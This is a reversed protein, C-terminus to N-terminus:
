LKPKANTLSTIEAPSEGQISDQVEENTDEESDDDSDEDTQADESAEEFDDADEEGPATESEPVDIAPAPVDVESADEEISVETTVEAPAEAYPVTEVAVEEATLKKATLFGQEDVSLEADCESCRM